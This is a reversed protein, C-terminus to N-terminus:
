EASGNSEMLRSAVWAAPLVRRPWRFPLRCWVKSSGNPHLRRRAAVLGSSSSAHLCTLLYHRGGGAGCMPWSNCGAPAGHGVLPGDKIDKIFISKSTSNFYLHTFRFILKYFGYLSIQGLCSLDQLIFNPCNSSIQSPFCNPLYKICLYENSNYSM